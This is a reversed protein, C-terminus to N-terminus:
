SINSPRFPSLVRSFISSSVPPLFQELSFNNSFKISFPFSLSKPLLHTFSNLPPHCPSAFPYLSPFSLSFTFRSQLSSIPPLFPSFLKLYVSPSWYLFPTLLFPPCSHFNSLLFFLLSLSFFNFTLSLLFFPLSYTNLPCTSVCTIPDLSYLQTHLILESRGGPYYIM